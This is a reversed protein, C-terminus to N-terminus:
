AIRTSRKLSGSRGSPLGPQVHGSPYCAFDNSRLVPAILLAEVVDDDTGNGSFGM